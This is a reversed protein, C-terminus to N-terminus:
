PHQHAACQHSCSYGLAMGRPHGQSDPHVPRQQKATDPESTKQGPSPLLLSGLVQALSMPAGEGLVLQKQRPAAGSFRKIRSSPLHTLPFKTSYANLIIYSFIFDLYSGGVM